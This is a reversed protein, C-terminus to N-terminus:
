RRSPKGVPKWLLRPVCTLEISEGPVYTTDRDDGSGWSAQVLCLAERCVLAFNTGGGADAQYLEDEVWGAQTLADRLDDHSPADGTRDMRMMHLSPVRRLSDRNPVDWYPRGSPTHSLVPGVRLTYGFLTSERSWSSGGAGLVRRLLSELSDRAAAFSGCAATPEPERNVWPTDVRAPHPGGPTPHSTASARPRAPPPATHTGATGDPAGHVLPAVILIALLAVGRM